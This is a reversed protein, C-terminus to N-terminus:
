KAKKGFFKDYDSKAFPMSDAISKGLRQFVVGDIVVCASYVHQAPPSPQRVNCPKLSLKRNLPPKVAERTMSELMRRTETLLLTGKVVDWTGARGIGPGRNNASPKDGLASAMWGYRMDPLLM